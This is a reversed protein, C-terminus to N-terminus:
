RRNKVFDADVKKEKRKLIDHVARKYEDRLVM